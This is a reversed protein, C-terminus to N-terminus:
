SRYVVVADGTRVQDFLAALAAHDRVNVCGHSAGAYGRAAFDSSYHVAQGRSFFMALPMESGYLDSVHERDKWYVTFRGERTPTYESGFRVDLTTRVTGDVVWRLSRSTKDVCLVRGTTCRPDLAAGDAPDPERNALEDATPDHTMQELLDLTRRDVRGTAPVHRKDQFGTVASVTRADYSGTVDGAYWALQRLRAQVVRVPAGRDGVQHIPPGALNFTEERSPARTLTVLRRWTTPDVVGTRHLGRKGQFQRVAVRTTADYRGTTPPTFWALQTLRAQLRRVEDGTDGPELVPEPAPRVAVTTVPETGQTPAPSPSATPSATAETGAVTPSGAASPTPVPRQLFPLDPLEGGTSRVAYATGGAAVLVVAGVTTAVLVKRAAGM